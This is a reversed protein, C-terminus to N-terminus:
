TTTNLAARFPPAARLPVIVMPPWVSITVCCAADHVNEMAGALWVMPAALADPATVTVVPPDHAHVATEVRGSHNDIVLPDEPVPLPCTMNVAEIFAVPASRVAVIVM